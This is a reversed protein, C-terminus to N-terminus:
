NAPKSPDRQFHKPIGLIPRGDFLEQFPGNKDNYHLFVQAHNLGKYRERWHDVDCGRYIIMDGPEMYVPAGTEPDEKTEVWM